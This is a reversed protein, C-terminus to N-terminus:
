KRRPAPYELLKGAKREMADRRYLLRVQKRTVLPYHRIEDLMGPIDWCNSGNTVWIKPDVKRLDFARSYSRLTLQGKKNAYEHFYSMSLERLTKYVPNRYRLQVHNSKSIAGWCGGRRFLAVVHDFDNTAKLDLLIPPEGHIWLACAAVMAGEICHANRQRLVQRVSLCTEGNREFNARLASVFKQIRHPTSLRKLIAYETKTLGLDQRRATRM